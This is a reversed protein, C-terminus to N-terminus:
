RQRIRAATVNVIIQKKPAPKPIPTPKPKLLKRHSKEARTKTGNKAKGSDAFVQGGNKNARGSKRRILAFTLFVLSLIVVLGNRFYNTM